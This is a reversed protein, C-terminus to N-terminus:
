GLLQNFQLGVLCVDDFFSGSASFACADHELSLFLDALPENSHRCASDILHEEGYYEGASNSVASLGDTFLVVRGGPDICCEVTEYVTGVEIALARSQKQPKEGLWQVGGKRILVPHMHGASAMQIKGSEADFTLYCAKVELPVGDQRLLPALLQNVRTLYAGPEMELSTIEQAIGRILATGLAARVGIGQVDCLFIGAVSDSLRKISCYDGSIDSGSKFQHLFEVCRDEPAAGKPYVPYNSPFFTKQLESAMRVDEEMEEKILRVEDAYRQARLEAEKRETIDRSIGFTGIIENQANKLPMKTTSVWSVSGDPWTEKEEINNLPQGTKIIKQEDSFAQEAHEKSFVDFDTKGAVSELSPWGHKKLCTLNLMVFRSELDKFYIADTLNEMLSELFFGSDSDPHNNEKM